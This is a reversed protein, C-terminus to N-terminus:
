LNKDCFYPTNDDVYASFNVDKQEFFMDLTDINLLLLGLKGPTCWKRNKVM